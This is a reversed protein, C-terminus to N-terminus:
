REVDERLHNSIQRMFVFFLLCYVGSSINSWEVLWIIDAHNGFSFIPLAENVLVVILWLLAVHWNFLRYGSLSSEMGRFHRWITAALFYDIVMILFLWSPIYTTKSGFFDIKILPKISLASPFFFFLGILLCFIANIGTMNTIYLRQDMNNM